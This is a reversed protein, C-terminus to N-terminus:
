FGRPSYGNKKNRERAWKNYAEIQKERAERVTDLDFTKQLLADVTPKKTKAKKWFEATDAYFQQRTRMGPYVSMDHIIPHYSEYKPTSGTLLCGGTGTLILMAAMVMTLRNLLMVM